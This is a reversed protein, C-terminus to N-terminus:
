PFFHLVFFDVKYVKKLILRCYDSPIDIVWFTKSTILFFTLLEMLKEFIIFFSNFSKFDLLPLWFFHEVKSSLRFPKSISFLSNFSKSNFQVTRVRFTKSSTWFHISCNLIMRFCASIIKTIKFTKSPLGVFRKKIACDIKWHNRWRWEIGLM